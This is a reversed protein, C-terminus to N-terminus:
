AALSAAYNFRAEDTLNGLPGLAIQLVRRMVKKNTDAQMAAVNNRAEDATMPARRPFMTDFANNM